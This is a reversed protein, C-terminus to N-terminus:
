KQTFQWSNHIDTMFRRDKKLSLNWKTLWTLKAGKFVGFYMFFFVLFFSFTLMKSPSIQSFFYCFGIKMNIFIGNPKLM